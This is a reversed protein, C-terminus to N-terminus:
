LRARRSTILPLIPPDKLEVPLADSILTELQARSMVEIMSGDIRSFCAVQDCIDLSQEWTCQASEVGEPLGYKEFDDESMEDLLDRLEYNDPALDARDTNLTIKLLTVPENKMGIYNLATHLSGALFIAELSSASHIPDLGKSQIESVRSTPTLHYFIHTTM